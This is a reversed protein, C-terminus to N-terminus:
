YNIIKYVEGFTYGKELIIPYTPSEGFSAPTFNNPIVNRERLAFKMHFYFDAVLESCFYSSPDEEINIAGVSSILQLVDKEYDKKSVHKIFNSNGRSITRPTKPGLLQRYYIKDQEVDIVDEIRNVQVGATSTLIRKMVDPLDDESHILSQLVYIEDKILQKLNPNTSKQRIVVGVHSWNSFTAIKITWSFFSRGSVLIIDGTRANKRIWNMDVEKCPASGM